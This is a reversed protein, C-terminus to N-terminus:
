QQVLEYESLDNPFVIDPVTYNYVYRVQIEDQSSMIVALKGDHIVITVALDNASETYKIITAGMKDIGAEVFNEETLIAADFISSMEFQIEIALKAIVDELSGDTEFSFKEEGYQIYAINENIYISFDLDGDLVMSAKPLEGTFDIKTTGTYSYEYGDLFGTMKQEYSYTKAKGTAENAATLTTIAESLTLTSEYTYAKDFVYDAVNYKKEENEDGCATLSFASAFILMIVFFKKIIAKM